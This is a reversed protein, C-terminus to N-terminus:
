IPSFKNFDFSTVGIVYYTFPNVPIIATSGGLAIFGPTISIPGSDDLFLVLVKVTKNVNGTTAYRCDIFLDINSNSGMVQSATLSIGYWDDGALDSIFGILFPYFSISSQLTFPSQITLNFISSGVTHTYRGYKINLCNVSDYALVRVTFKVLASYTSDKYVVPVSTTSSAQTLVSINRFSQKSGDQFELIVAFTDTNGSFANQFTFTVTKGPGLM